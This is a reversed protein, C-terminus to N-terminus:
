RALGLVWSSAGWPSGHTWPLRRRRKNEDPMLGRLWSLVMVERREVLTVADVIPRHVSSSLESASM